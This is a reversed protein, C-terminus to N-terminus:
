VSHHFDMRAKWEGANRDFQLVFGTQECLRCMAFNGPLIHGELASLGEEKATDVLRGLLIGGLGRGQWSDSVVLAFEAKNDRRLRTLRGIAIIEECGDARTHIGVLAIERDYDNFCVRSLRPHAIRRELKMATFFRMLVSAESLTEHFAAMFPEDEARIARILVPTDDKLRCTCTYQAPYPRIAPTPLDEDKVSQDHLIVRVDLAIIREASVLLPNLDIEKIRPQDLVLQSFRVLLQQLAELDASREGRVGELASFIRTQEMMRLALTANLPPLGLARDKFVEVLKGGTGFLLVPGFQADVSSGLILEYGGKVMPQVSVGLFHGPGAKAEVSERIENFAAMVSESGHIDLKVGGVDSKHTITQSHLKLVVPYGIREAVQAAEYPSAALLSEAVPIGYAALILKSERESLLTRGGAEANGMIEAVAQHQRRSELSLGGDVPTEYIAKLNKSYRWMYAFAKAATDPYSFAPIGATNLIERGGAVADGGMWSAFLPKTAKEAIGALAEATATCETMAQPTLVVLVGDNDRDSMAIEVARSYCDARADGLIDIPNNRSWHPPLFEGYAAFSEESLSAMEGGDAILQDTALAAPGGGNTVIALRPGHPLPQRGLVGAMDFLESITNVRLVGARRFAADLVDDSGTLSGTHSAAARAAAESRGVKIVVIPKTLSVERAASLFARANGVTEMYLVISRTHPDDGLYYLVDSWSVDLMSGMSVFASFGVQERLSWDLVATCLAGSQSVFGVNGTKAIGQAFTANLGDHPMMLGLCNPGIVRMAGRRREIEKELRQGAIGFERFGASIIIAGRVGSEACEGIIAPITAAPTVIVALDVQGHVNRISSMAPVGLVETRKPNIPYLRGAFGAALLNEWVTRGVSGEKETAGILAVSRPRFIQSFENRNESDVVGNQHVSLSRLLESTPDLLQPM